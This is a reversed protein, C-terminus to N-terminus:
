VSNEKGIPLKVKAYADNDLGTDIRLYDVPFIEKNYMIWDVDNLATKKDKDKVDYKKIREINKIDTSWYNLGEALDILFLKNLVLAGDKDTELLTSALVPEKEHTYHNTIYVATSAFREKHYFFNLNYKSKPLNSSTSPFLDILSCDTVDSEVVMPVPIIPKPTFPEELLDKATIRFQSPYPKVDVEEPRSDINMNINIENKSNNEHVIPKDLILEVEDDSEILQELPKNKIEKMNRLLKENWEKVHKYVLEVIILRVKCIRALEIRDIDESNLVKNYVNLICLFHKQPKISLKVDVDGDFKYIKKIIRKLIDKYFIDTPLFFTNRAEVFTARKIGEADIFNSSSDDPNYMEWSDVEPEDEVIMSSNSNQKSKKPKRKYYNDIEQKKM